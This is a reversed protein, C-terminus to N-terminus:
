FYGSPPAGSMGRQMLDVVFPLAVVNPEAMATRLERARGSSDLGSIFLHERGRSVERISSWPLTVRRIGARGTIGQRNADFGGVRVTETTAVRSALERAIRPLVYADLFRILASWLPAPYEEPLDGAEFSIRLRESGARLRCSYRRIWYKRAFSLYAVEDIADTALVTAGLAIREADAVFEEKMITTRITLDAVPRERTRGGGPEEHDRSEAMPPPQQQANAQRVQDTWRQGDWWRMRGGAAPDPYWGPEPQTM